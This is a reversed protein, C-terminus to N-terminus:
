YQEARDPYVKGVCGKNRTPTAVVKDQSAFPSTGAAVDNALSQAPTLIVAGKVPRDFRDPPPAITPEQVPAADRKPLNRKVTQVSVKLDAAIEEPTLRAANETIYFKEAKSLAM